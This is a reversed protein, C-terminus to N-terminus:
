PGHAPRRVIPVRPPYRHRGRYCTVNVAAATLGAALSAAGAAAIVLRHSRRM